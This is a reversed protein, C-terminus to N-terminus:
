IKGMIYMNIRYDSFFIDDASFIRFFDTWILAGIGGDQCFLLCSPGLALPAPVRCGWPLTYTKQFHLRVRWMLLVAPGDPWPPGKGHSSSAAFDCVEVGLM